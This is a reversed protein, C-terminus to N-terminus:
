LARLGSADLEAIFMTPVGYLATCREQEVATLTARPMSARASPYVVTAGCTVGALNGMVMGFCHFLPVPVCIRDGPALQQAQGVFWGNNLINRHSLTAGKPQGTTGSTFQINIAANRDLGASIDRRRASTRTQLADLSTMSGSGAEERRRASRSGTCNNPSKAPRWWPWTTARGSSEAAVVAKMGTKNLTFGLESTRHAPNITTLVLGIKAAAFQTLAWERLQAVLNRDPRWARPRAGAIWGGHRGGQLRPRALEVPDGARGVRHRRTVGRKAASDLAQGITIELLPLESAGAVWSLDRDM